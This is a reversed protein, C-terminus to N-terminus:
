PLKDFDLGQSKGYKNLWDVVKAWSGSVLERILSFALESLEDVSLVISGGARYFAKDAVVREDSVWYVNTGESMNLLVAVYGQDQHEEYLSKARASIWCALILLKQSLRSAAYSGVYEDFEDLKIALAQYHTELWALDQRLECCSDELTAM